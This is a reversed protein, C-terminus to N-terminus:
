DDVEGNVFHAVLAAYASTAFSPREDFISMIGIEKAAEIQQAVDEAGMRRLASVARNHADNVHGNFVAVFPLMPVDAVANRTVKESM